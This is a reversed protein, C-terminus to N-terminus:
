VPLSWGPKMLMPKNLTRFRLESDSIRKENKKRSTIDTFFVSLGAPSPYILNQFWRDYPQYYEEMSITEQKEMARHYALYVPRGIDEPFETWINKGVLTEPDKGLLEGARKNVYTYHWSSDIAVFADTVREYIDALEKEAKKRKSIDIITTLRYETGDLEIKEASFLCNILKNSKTKLSLERNLLKKSHIFEDWISKVFEQNIIGLEIGTKGIVDKRELEAMELLHDNIHTIVHDANTLIMGVLNNNFIRLFNNDDGRRM